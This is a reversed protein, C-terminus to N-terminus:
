GDGSGTAWRHAPGPTGNARLPSPGFGPGQRSFPYSGPHLEWVHLPAPRIVSAGPRRSGFDTIGLPPPM